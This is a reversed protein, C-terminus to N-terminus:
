NGPSFRNGSSGKDDRLRFKDALIKVGDLEIYNEKTGDLVKEANKILKKNLRKSLLKAFMAGIFMGLLGAIISVIILIIIIKQDM